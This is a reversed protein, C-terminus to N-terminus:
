GTTTGLTTPLCLTKTNVITVKGQGFQNQDWVPNRIPTKSVKFCVYNLSPNNIPFVQGTPLIKETPVCLVTPNAVKVTTLAAPSFEDNVKVPVPPHYPATGALYKVPYCTYHDEGPPTNPTQNPKGTLSKWSPVLLETPAATVLTATGFQNSATVTASSQAATIQWGLFHWDPNVIPFEGTPVVKLAPNCHLNAAGVKPVFGNPSLANVLRIGPPVKFGKTATAVYCLYHNSPTAQAATPAATLGGVVISGGLGAMVTFAAALARLGPPRHMRSM